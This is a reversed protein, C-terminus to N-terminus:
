LAKFLMWLVIIVVITIVVKALGATSNHASHVPPPLPQPEVTQQTAQQPTLSKPARLRISALVEYGDEIDLIIEAKAEARIQSIITYDRRLPELTREIGDWRRKADMLERIRDERSRGVIVEKPQENTVIVLEPTEIATLSDEVDAFAKWEGGVAINLSDAGFTGDDVMDIIEGGMAQGQKGTLSDWYHFSKM